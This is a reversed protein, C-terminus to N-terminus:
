HKLLRKAKRYFFRLIQLGNGITLLIGYSEQAALRLEWDKWVAHEIIQHYVPVDHLTRLKKEREKRSAPFMTITRITEKLKRRCFDTFAAYDNESWVHEQEMLEWIMQDLLGDHNYNAITQTNTVSNPNQRYLYLIDPLFSVTKCNLFLPISELLDESTRLDKYHASFDRKSFLSAKIVKRPMQSYGTNTFLTRYLFAKDTVIGCPMGPPNCPIERGNPYLDASRFILIDSNDRSVAKSVVEIEEPKMKDDSDAFMLYDNEGACSLAYAIGAERAALAGMNKQHIVHVKSSQAAAYEDCIMGSGDQSGDDVLVIRFQQFTQNLISDMCERIYAAANYVPVIIYFFPNNM